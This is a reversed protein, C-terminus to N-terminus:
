KKPTPKKAKKARKEDKDKVQWAKPNMAAADEEVSTESDEEGSDSPVEKNGEENAIAVALKQMEKKISSLEADFQPKTDVTPFRGGKNIKKEQVDGISEESYDSAAKQIEEMNPFQVSSQIEYKRKKKEM